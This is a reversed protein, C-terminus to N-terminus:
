AGWVGCLSATVWPTFGQNQWLLLAVEFQQELTADVPRFPFGVPAFETWTTLAFQFAGEDGSSPNIAVTNDTSEYWAICSWPQPLDSFGFSGASASVLEARAGGEGVSLRPLQPSAPIHHPLLMTAVAIATRMITM